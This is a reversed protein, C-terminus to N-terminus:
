RVLVRGCHPCHILADEPRAELRHREQMPLTVKCGGCTGDALRAAGKGRLRPRARVGEYAALIEDSIAIALQTRQEALAALRRDIETESATIAARLARAEDDTDQRAERNEAIERELAEIEELLGMEGDERTGQKERLLRLEEQHAELEKPARITGSYLRDEVQHAKAALQAVEAALDRERRGLGARRELLELHRAGLEAARAECADLLTREPLTRRQERLRDGTRDLEQVDLLVSLTPM